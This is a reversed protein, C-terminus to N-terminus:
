RIPRPTEMLSSTEPLCVTEVANLLSIKSPGPFAKVRRSPCRATSCFARVSSDTGDRRPGSRDSQRRPPELIPSELDPQALRIPQHLRKALRPAPPTKSWVPPQATSRLAKSCSKTPCATGIRTLWNTAPNNPGYGRRFERRDQRAQAAHSFGSHTSRVLGDTRHQTYSPRRHRM